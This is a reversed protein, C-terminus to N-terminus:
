TSDGTNKLQEAIKAMEKARIKERAEMINVASSNALLALKKPILFNRGYGDAVEKIEGARAVKPVDELFIVKM